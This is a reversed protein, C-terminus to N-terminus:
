KAGDGALHVEPWTKVDAQAILLRLVRTKTSKTQEAIAELKKREDQTLRFGVYETGKM